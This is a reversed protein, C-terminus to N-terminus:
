AIFTKTIQCQTSLESTRMCYGRLNLKLPQRAAAAFAAEFETWASLYEAVRPAERWYLLPLLIHPHLMLLPTMAYIEEDFTVSEAEVFHRFAYSTAALVPATLIVYVVVSYVM